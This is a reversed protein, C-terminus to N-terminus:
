FVRKGFERLFAQTKAISINVMVKDLGKTITEGISTVMQGNLNGMGMSNVM